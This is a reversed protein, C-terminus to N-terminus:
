MSKSGNKEYTKFYKLFELYNFPFHNIPFPTFDKIFEFNLQYLSMELELDKSELPGCTSSSLALNFLSRIRNLRDM